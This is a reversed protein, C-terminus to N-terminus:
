IDSSFEQAHPLTFILPWTSGDPTWGFMGLQSRCWRFGHSSTRDIELPATSIRSTALQLNPRQLATQESRDHRHQWDTKRKKTPEPPANTHLADLDAALGITDTIGPLRRGNATHRV